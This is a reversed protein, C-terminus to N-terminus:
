AGWQMKNKPSSFLWSTSVFGHQDSSWSETSVMLFIKLFGTNELTLHRRFVFLQLLLHIHHCSFSSCMILVSECIWGSRFLLKQYKTHTEKETVPILLFLWVSTLVMFFLFIFQKYFLHTYMNCTWFLLSFLLCVLIYGRIRIKPIQCNETNHLLVATQELVWFSTCTFLLGTLTVTNVQCVSRLLRAGWSQKETFLKWWEWQVPAAGRCCPPVPWLPVVKLVVYYREDLM